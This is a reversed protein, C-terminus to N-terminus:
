RPEEAVVAAVFGPVPFFGTMRWRRRDEPSQEVRLLEAPEGPALSVDFRDLPYYMGHGLAKIFAEKRTWCQFFGLPRDRPDLARYAANERDSFVRTAVDDADPMTRVAEVDVGVDGASSFAYVAVDECHSVNFRLGSAALRPALAPKGRGGYVLEVAQPRVGLRAALLGRLVGRAVVFRQRDRDFVFRRARDQEEDSLVAAGARLAESRVDLRTVIVEVAEDV